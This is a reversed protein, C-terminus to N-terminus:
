PGHTNVPASLAAFADGSRTASIRDRFESKLVRRKNPSLPAITSPVGREEFGNAEDSCCPPPEIGM